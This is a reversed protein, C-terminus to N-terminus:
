KRINLEKEKIRSPMSLGRIRRSGICKELKESSSILTSLCESFVVLIGSVVSKLLSKATLKDVQELSIIAFYMLLRVLFVLHLVMMKVWPSDSSIAMGCIWNCLKLSTSLLRARFIYFLVPLVLLIFVCGAFLYFDQGALDM